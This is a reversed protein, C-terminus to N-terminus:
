NMIETCIKSLKNFYHWVEKVGQFTQLFEENISLSRREIDSRLNRRTRLSNENFFTSLAKLSELMEQFPFFLFSSNRQKFSMLWLKLFDRFARHVLTYFLNYYIHKLM